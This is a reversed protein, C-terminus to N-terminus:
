YPPLNLDAHWSRLGAILALEIGLAGGLTVAQGIDLFLCGLVLIMTTIAALVATGTAAARVWDRELTLWALRMQVIGSLLLLLALSPGAARIAEGMLLKQAYTAGINAQGGLLHPIGLAASSIEVAAIPVMIMLALAYSTLIFRGEDRVPMQCLAGALCGAAFTLPRGDDVAADFEALM